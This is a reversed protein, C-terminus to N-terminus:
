YFLSTFYALILKETPPLNVGSGIVQLGKSLVGQLCIVRLFTSVSGLTETGASSLPFTGSVQFQFSSHPDRNKRLARQNRDSDSLRAARMWM